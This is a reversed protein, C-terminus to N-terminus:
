PRIGSISLLQGKEQDFHTGLQTVYLVDNPGFACSVPGALKVDEYIKVTAKGGDGLSIRALKGVNVKTLAWNNDVVVLDDSGPIRAMGMPDVIGPLNWQAVPKRTELSWKVILGDEKGGTGSYVCLLSSEDWAILQMPSNIAIDNDDASAWPSLKKTEPDAVLIWSKADAGQGCAYIKGDAGRVLGAPNGEGKDVELKTTPPVGNTPMGSDATGAGKFFILRDAGDKKGADSVVISGDPLWIASIPGLLFRKAGTKADVKWYETDFGTLFDKAAGNEYLLVKGHGADCVLMRGDDGCALSSPNQLGDLLVKVVLKADASEESSENKGSPKSTASGKSAESSSDSKGCAFMFATVFIALALSTYTRM